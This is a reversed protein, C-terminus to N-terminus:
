AALNIEVEKIEPILKTIEEVVKTKLQPPMDAKMEVVAKGEALSTTFDRFYFKMLSNLKELSHSVIRRVEVEYDLDKGALPHNFDVVSRGGSVTKIIGFMGDINVQLGPVPSIEQERFRATSMLQLLKANKKGFAEEPTLSFKFSGIGKGVLGKELGKLLHGEGICVIVPEYKQNPDFMPNDKAVEGRTTDFPLGTERVFGTYDIEVFDGEKIEDSM